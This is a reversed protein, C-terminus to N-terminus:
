TKSKTGHHHIWSESAIEIVVTFRPAATTIAQNDARRLKIYGIEPISDTDLRVWSNPSQPSSTGLYPELEGNVQQRQLFDAFVLVPNASGGLYLLRAYHPETFKLPPGSLKYGLYFTKTNEQYFYLSRDEEVGTPLRQLQIVLTTPM